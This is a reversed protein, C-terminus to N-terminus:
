PAATAGQTNLAAFAAAADTGFSDAQIAEAVVTIKFGDKLKDMDQNDFYSPLTVSTFLAGTNAGPALTGKYNYVYTLTDNGTTPQIIAAREWKNEDHGAFIKTLDALSTVPNSDAEYKAAIALFDAANDVTVKVRVYANNGGTNAVTPDKLVPVGPNAKVPLNAGATDKNPWSPETLGIKVNGVTFVNEATKTDTFYALTLATALSAVMMVAIVVLALSKKKM